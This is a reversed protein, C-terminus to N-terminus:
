ESDEEDPCGSPARGDGIAATVDSNAQREWWRVIENLPAIWVDNLDIAYDFFRTIGRAAGPRGARWASLRLVQLAGEDRLVDLDDRWNVVLQDSVLDTDLGIDSAHPPLPIRTVTQRDDTSTMPLDTGLSTDAVWAFGAATLSGALPGIRSSAAAPLDPLVIGPAEGIMRGSLDNLAAGLARSDGIERVTLATGHGRSRSDTLLDAHALAAEPTWIVTARIDIDALVSLLRALGTAAYTAGPEEPMGQADILVALASRYPASWRGMAQDPATSFPETM